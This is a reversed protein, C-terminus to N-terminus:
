GFNKLIGWTFIIKTMKKRSMLWMCSIKKRKKGKTKGGHKWRAKRGRRSCSIGTCNTTEIIVEHAFKSM